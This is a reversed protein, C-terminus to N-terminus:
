RMGPRLSGQGACLTLASPEQRHPPGERRGRRRAAVGPGGAHRPTRPGQRDPLGRGESQRAPDPRAPLHRDRQPVAARGAPGRLVKGLPEYGDDIYTRGSHNEYGVVEGFEPSELTVNGILRDTGARTDLPLIGAGKIIKGEGTVFTRGLLQYMGCILLMPAGDEVLRGLEDIHHQLDEQIKDQGADQGGGGLFIDGSGLDTDDSPDHDVIEADIGRWELRKQLVRANGWDGYLNMDRPYLQVIRIM